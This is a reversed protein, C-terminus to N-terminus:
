KLEIETNSVNVGEDELMLRVDTIRREADHSWASHWPITVHKVRCLYRLVNASRAADQFSM